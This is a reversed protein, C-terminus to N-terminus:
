RKRGLLRKELLHWSLWALLILLCSCSLFLLWPSEKMWGWHIFLQIVPFHYLYLGYSLDGIRSIAGSKKFYYAAFILIIALSLPYFFDIVEHQIFYRSLFILLSLPLIWSGHKRFFDFYFLLIGGSIFFRVQGLFQKSLLLYITKGSLDYLYDMGCTFLFSFIYLGALVPIPKRKIFLAIFPVLAYLALEVKITWLSGNVFPLPNDPFVGPLTPQIFNMFMLNAALYWYFVGSTFYERFSFSSVCSFLFACIIVILVYAPVIRRIRKKVYDLLSSSKYYSRIILFGSIIFFGYVGTVSSIPWYFLHHGTLIRFHAFFVSSALFLRLFDFGNKESLFPSFSFHNYRKM